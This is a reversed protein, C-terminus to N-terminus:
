KGKHGKGKGESKKQAKRSTTKGTQGYKKDDNRSMVVKDRCGKGGEWHASRSKTVAAKCGSCAQQSYPQEKSCFGCVMRTAYKMEHDEEEEHCLDCPYCKGCCPFRLWRFSKKYHKCTGNGPLPQGEKVGANRPTKKPKSPIGLTANKRLSVEMNSAGSQLLQFRTSQIQFRLKQHCHSCWSWNGGYQLGKVTTEKSCYFCGLVLESEPLVVDFPLCGDIDLYGLISSFQHIVAPRYTVAFTSACRTCQKGVSGAASIQQDIRQKCRSCELTFAVKNARLSSISEELHLGKFLIQTGREATKSSTTESENGFAHSLTSQVAVENACPEEYSTDSSIMTVCEASHRINKANLTSDGSECIANGNKIGDIGETIHKDGEKDCILSSSSCNLDAADNFIKDEIAVGNSMNDRQITDMVQCGIERDPLHQRYNPSVGEANSETIKPQNPHIQSLTNDDSTGGIRAVFARTMEKGADVFLSKLNKDLWRLFPRFHLKMNGQNCGMQEQQTTYEQIRQTVFIIINQPLDQEESLSASFIHLPYDDPFSVTLFVTEIKFPWDPDTPKFEVKYVSNEKIEYYGNKGGFRRKLQQIETLRLRKPEAFIADALTYTGRLNSTNTKHTNPKKAEWEKHRRAHDVNSITGKTHGKEDEKIPVSPEMRHKKDATECGDFAIPLHTEARQAAKLSCLDRQGNDAVMEKIKSGTDRTCSLSQKGQIAEYKSRNQRITFGEKSDKGRKFCPSDRNNENRKQKSHKDSQTFRSRQENTRSNTVNVDQVHLIAVQENVTLQKEFELQPDSVFTPQNTKHCPSNRFGSFPTVVDEWHHPTRKKEKSNVHRDYAHLNQRLKGPIKGHGSAKNDCLYGNDNMGHFFPCKSGRLCGRKGSFFKCAVTQRDLKLPTELKEDQEKEAHVYHDTSSRKVNGARIQCGEDLANMSADSLEKAHVFRCTDGLRCGKKTEFFRCKAIAGGANEAM